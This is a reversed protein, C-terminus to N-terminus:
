YSRQILDHLTLVGMCSGDEDVVPASFVKRSPSEMIELADSVNVTRPITVPNSNILDCARLSYVDSGSTLARRIDGDSIIGMLLSTGSDVVCILGAKHRSDIVIADMLPTEFGVFPMRSKWSPIDELLKAVAFGLQGGPHDRGFSTTTLGMLESCRSVLINALILSIDTTILPLINNADGEQDVHLLLHEDSLESLLSEARNTLSVIHCGRSRLEPVLTNLENSNGSKSIAVVTAKQIVGGLDGHLAESPHLFISRKGISTLSANMKQAIFGSKGIGTCVVQSADALSRAIREISDESTSIREVAFTLSELYRRLYSM